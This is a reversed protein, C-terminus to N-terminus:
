PGEGAKNDKKQVVLWLHPPHVPSQLSRLWRVLRRLPTATLMRGFDTTGSAKAVYGASELRTRLGQESWSRVHQWRHFEHNCCPCYVTSASLNEANPTTIFLLAGPKLFRHVSSLIEDLTPDDVHEVVETMVAADFSGAQEVLDDVVFAGEFGAHAAGAEAARQVSEPSIDCATTRYGASLLRPLLFGPGCAYDLVRAPPQLFRRLLGALAEGYRNAFYNEPFRSQWDWFRSVEDPTWALPVPHLRERPSM